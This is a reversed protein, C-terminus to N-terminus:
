LLRWLENFSEEEIDSVTHAVRLIRNNRLVYLCYPFQGPVDRQHILEVFLFRDGYCIREYHLFLDRAYLTRHEGVYMLLDGPEVPRDNVFLHVIYNQTEIEMCAITGCPM